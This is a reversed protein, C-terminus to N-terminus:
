AVLTMYIYIYIYIYIYSMLLRLTLSKVMIRSIHLFHHDLLALMSCIPNLEPKLPNFRLYIFSYICFHLILSGSTMLTWLQGSSISVPFTLWTVAGEESKNTNSLLLEFSQLKYLLVWLFKAIGICTSESDYTVTKILSSM